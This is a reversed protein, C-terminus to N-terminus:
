KAFRANWEAVKPHAKVADHLASLKTFDKFVDTPVHDVGGGIFWKMLVYIKLDAVSLSEGAVFPGEIQAEFNRGWQQMPGSAFAERKEQRTPDDSSPSAASLATRLDEVAALLAEHRAAEFADTPHMGHQRGIFPLIANSQAVAGKGEVTLVPLAGFPTGAKRELWTKNPPVRDDEFEVGALHLALRCDEGRGGPFDFYTLKTAM